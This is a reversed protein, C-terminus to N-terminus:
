KPGELAANYQELTKELHRKERTDGLEIAKELLEIARKVNGRKFHVGALTSVTFVRKYGTLENARRAADLAVDLDAGSPAASSVIMSAIRNMEISADEAYLNPDIELLKGCAALAGKWDKKEFAIELDVKVPAASAVSQMRQLYEGAFEELDWTGEVISALPDIMDLSYGIWAIRMNGDIIFSLPINDHGSAKLWSQVMKGEIAQAGEPVDDRVLPYTITEGMRELYKPIRVPLYELVNVGVVTVQDGYQDQLAAIHPIAQTCEACWTAWFDIVYIHGKELEEVPDGRIWEGVTLPPPTDGVMLPYPRGADALVPAPVIGTFATWVTLAIVFTTIMRRVIM